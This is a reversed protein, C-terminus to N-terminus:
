VLDGRIGVINWVSGIVTARPNLPVLGDDTPLYLVYGARLLAERYEQEGSGLETLGGAHIETVWIEPRNKQCGMLVRHDAGETDTKLLRIPEAVVADVRLTPVEVQVPRKRSQVNAVFRGVNYLAHGGDNDANVWLTATGNVDAAAAHLPVVNEFLNAAITQTLGRYNEPTPEFAYVKACRAAMQATFFGIHAGVDVCVDEPGIREVIAKLTAAEYDPKAMERHVPRTEDLVYRCPGHTVLM